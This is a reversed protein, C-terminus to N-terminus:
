CSTYICIINKDKGPINDIFVSYDFDDPILFFMLIHEALLM